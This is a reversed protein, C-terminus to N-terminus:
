CMPDLIFLTIDHVLSEDEQSQYSWDPSGSTFIEQWVHRNKFRNPSSITQKARPSVQLLKRNNQRIRFRM